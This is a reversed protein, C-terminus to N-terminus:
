LNEHFTMFGDDLLSSQFSVTLSTLNNEEVYQGTSKEDLLLKKIELYKEELARHRDTQVTEDLLIDDM